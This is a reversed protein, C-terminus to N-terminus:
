YVIALPEGGVNQDRAEKDTIVGRNTSLILIGLGGLVRPIDSVGYYVRRGPKSVRQLDEIVPKGPAAYALYIRLFGQKGDRVRLFRNIFRERLLVRTVEIKLRSSPIDVFKHGARSANRIRTLYDAIPDTQSM